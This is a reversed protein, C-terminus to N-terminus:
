VSLAYLAVAKHTSTILGGALGCPLRQCLDSAHRWTNLDLVYTQNTVNFKGPRRGGHILWRDMVVAASSHIRYPPIAGKCEIKRWRFSTLDLEWVQCCVLAEGNRYKRRVTNTAQAQMTLFM